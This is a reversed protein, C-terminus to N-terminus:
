KGHKMLDNIRKDVEKWGHIHDRVFKEYDEDTGEPIFVAKTDEDPLTDISEDTMDEVAELFSKSKKALM